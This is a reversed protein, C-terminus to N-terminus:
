RSVLRFTCQIVGLILIFIHWWYSPTAELLLLYNAIFLSEVIFWVLCLSISKKTIYYGFIVIMLPGFYGWMNLSLFLFYFLEYGSIQAITFLWM